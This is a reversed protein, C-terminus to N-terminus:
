QRTASAYLNAQSQFVSLPDGQFLGLLPAQQLTITGLSLLRFSSSWTIISILDYFSIYM